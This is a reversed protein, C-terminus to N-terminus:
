CNSLSSSSVSSSSRVRGFSFFGGKYLTIKDHVHELCYETVVPLVGGPDHEVYMFGTFPDAADVGAIDGFGLNGGNVTVGAFVFM